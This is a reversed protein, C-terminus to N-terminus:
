FPYDKNKMTEVYSKFLVLSSHKDKTKFKVTADKIVAWFTKGEYLSEELILKIRYYKNKNM